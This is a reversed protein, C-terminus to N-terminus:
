VGLIHGKVLSQSMKSIAMRLRVAECGRTRRREGGQRLAAKSPPRSGGVKEEQEDEIGWWQFRKPV